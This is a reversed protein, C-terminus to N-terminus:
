SFSGNDEPIKDGAVSSFPRRRVWRVVLHRRRSCYYVAFAPQAATKLYQYKYQACNGRGRHATGKAEGTIKM